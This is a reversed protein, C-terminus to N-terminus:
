ACASSRKFMCVKDDVLVPDIGFFPRMPFGPKPTSDDPSPRPTIMIGGTETAHTFFTMAAHFKLPITGFICSCVLKKAQAEDTCHLVLHVLWRLLVSRLCQPMELVLLSPTRSMFSLLDCTCTRWYIIMIGTQWWTDVVTCKGGGVVNNYWLWAEDNLPEGVALCSPWVCIFFLVDAVVCTLMVIMYAAPKLEEWICMVDSNHLPAIPILCETFSPGGRCFM